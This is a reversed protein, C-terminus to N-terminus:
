FMTVTEAMGNLRCPCGKHLRSCTISIRCGYCQICEGEDSNAVSSKDSEEPEFDDEYEVTEAASAGQSPAGVDM